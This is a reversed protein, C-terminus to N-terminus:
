HFERPFMLASRLTIIKLRYEVLQSVKSCPLWSWCRHLLFCHFQFEFLMHTALRTLYSAHTSWMAPTAEVSLLSTLHTMHRLIIGVNKVYMPRMSDTWLIYARKPHRSYLRSSQQIAACKNLHPIFNMHRLLHGRQALLHSCYILSVSQHLLPVLINWIFPCKCVNDHKESHTQWTLTHFHNSHDHHPLHTVHCPVYSCMFYVIVLCPNRFLLMVLTTTQLLLVQM